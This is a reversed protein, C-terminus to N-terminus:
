QTEIICNKLENKSILGDGNTDIFWKFTLFMDQESIVRTPGEM